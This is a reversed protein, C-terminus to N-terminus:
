KMRKLNDEYDNVIKNVYKDLKSENLGYLEMTFKAKKVSSKDEFYDKVYMNKNDIYSGNYHDVQFYDRKYENLFNLYSVEFITLNQIEAYEFKKGKTLKKYLADSLKLFNAINNKSSVRYILGNPGSLSESWDFYDYLQYHVTFSNQLSDTLEVTIFTKYDIDLNKYKGSLHYTNLIFDTAKGSSDLEGYMGRIEFQPIKDFYEMQFQKEVLKNSNCSVVVAMISVLFAAVTSFFVQNKDLWERLKKFNKNMKIM